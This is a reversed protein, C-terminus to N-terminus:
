AGEEPAGTALVTIDDHMNEALIPADTVFLTSGPALLLQVAHAFGHPMSVRTAAEHSLSRGAEDYHGPMAIATWKPLRAGPVLPDEVPLTDSTMVYAHTGLPVDSDRVTLRARGIEVGNRLVLVRQDAASMLISVPGHPAKEPEIRFEQEGELRGAMSPAGSGPDVPAFAPPHGIHGPDARENVVVVTMGMPSVSFLEEAFVSPLHV